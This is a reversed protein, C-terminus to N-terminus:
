AALLDIALLAGAFAALSGAGFAALRNWSPGCAGLLAFLGTPAAASALLVAWTLAAARARKAPTGFVIEQRLGPADWRDAGPPPADLLGEVDAAAVHGAAALA